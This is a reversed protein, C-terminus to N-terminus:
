EEQSEKHNTDIEKTNNVATAAYETFTRGM